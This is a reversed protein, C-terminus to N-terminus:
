SHAGWDREVFWPSKKTDWTIIQGPDFGDPLLEIKVVNAPELNLVHNAGSDSEFDWSHYRNSKNKARRSPGFDLPACQRSLLGGDEKSYFTIRVRRKDHIARIFTEDMASIIRHRAKHWNHILHFRLSPAITQFGTRGSDM